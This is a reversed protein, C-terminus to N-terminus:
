DVAALRRETRGLGVLNGKRRYADALEGLTSRLEDPVAAAEFAAAAADLLYAWPELMDTGREAALGARADELAEGIRGRLLGM